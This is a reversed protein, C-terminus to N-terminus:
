PHWGHRYFHRYPHLWPDNWFSDPDSAPPLPWLYVEVAAIRLYPYPNEDSGDAFGHLIRGGVTLKRNKAYVEPDLFGQYEVVLRGQSSDRSLPEDGIGLPAQLMTVISHDAKASVTLVYGGLIVTAGQSRGVDAVLDRFNADTDIQDRLAPSIVSCNTMLLVVFSLSLIHKLSLM